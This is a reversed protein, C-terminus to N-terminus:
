RHGADDDSWAVVPGAAALLEDTPRDDVPVGVAHVGGSALATAVADRHDATARLAHAGGWTSVVLSLGLSRALDLVARTADDFPATTVAIAPRGRRAAALALAAGIGDVDTAPVVVSGLTETPFTRAVWLGASGPDAAVLGDRPLAGRLDAVVRAPHLPMREDVFGPQAVAALAAYLRNPPITPAARLEAARTRLRWPEVEVVPALGFRRRPSEDPDVGTAVVTDAEGFGLLEFDRAQLGCTGMHHPSDWRFVGKAGWTNAVPLNGAAAFAQLGDVAGRRVVGPGALVVVHRRALDVPLGRDDVATGTHAWQRPATVTGAPADLPVTVRFSRAAPLGDRGLAAVADAVADVVERASAVEEALPTAGPRTTLRVVGGPLTACGPGPGLRGDADALLAALAPDEVAVRPLEGLPEGFVCRVGAAALCDALLDAVTRVGAM